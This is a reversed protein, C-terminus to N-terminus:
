IGSAAAAATTRGFGACSCRYRPSSLHLGPPRPGRPVARHRRGRCSDGEPEDSIFQFSIILLTTASEFLAPTLATSGGDGRVREIEEVSGGAARAQEVFALFNERLVHNLFGAIGQPYSMPDSLSEYRPYLIRRLEFLTPFRNEIVELPADIERTADWSYYVVTRRNM